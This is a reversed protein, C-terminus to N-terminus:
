GVALDCLLRPLAAVHGLRRIFLPAPLALLWATVRLVFRARPGAHAAIDEVEGAVWDLRDGPIEKDPASFLSEAVARVTRNLAPYRRVLPASM